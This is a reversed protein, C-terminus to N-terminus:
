LGDHSCAWHLSEVVNCTGLASMTAVHAIASIRCCQLFHPDEDGARRCPIVADRCIVCMPYSAASSAAAM